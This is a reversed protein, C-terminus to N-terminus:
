MCSDHMGFVRFDRHNDTFVVSRPITNSLQAAFSVEVSDDTCKFGAITKDYTGVLGRVASGDVTTALCLVEFGGNLRKTALEHFRGQSETLQQREQICTRRRVPEPCGWVIIFGRHTGFIVFDQKQGVRSVWHVATIAGYIEPAFPPM